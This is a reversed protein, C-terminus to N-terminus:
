SINNDNVIDMYMKKLEVTTLSSNHWLLSFNGNVKNCIRKLHLIKRRAEKGKGLGLYEEEIITSEMVILPRIRINLRKKEIPDFALYEFCTGCRFGPLEAYGLTTDYSMGASECEFLTKPHSWRLYHMRGGWYSQKIGLASCVAKLSKMEKSIGGDLNFMEYSSHLGIEHGRRDIELLLKHIRRDTLRYSADYNKNNGGAIFYFSSKIGKKESLDMLLDFTNYPDDLSIEKYSILKQWIPRCAKKISKQRLLYSSAMRLATAWSNFAYQAPQDVDHSLFMQAKHKKLSLNPNLRIVVQGLIDLWEDIFPRELYGHKVAHSSSAKFRQHKDLENKELEEVRNLAWYILGM